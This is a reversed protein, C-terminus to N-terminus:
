LQRILAARTSSHGMREMRLGSLDKALARASDLGHNLRGPTRCRIV